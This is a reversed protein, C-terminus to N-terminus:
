GRLNLPVRGRAGDTSASANDRAPTECGFVIITAVREIKRGPLPVPKATPFSLVRVSLADLTMSNRTGLLAAGVVPEASWPWGRASRNEGTAGAYAQGDM